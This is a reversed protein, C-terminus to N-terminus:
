MCMSRYIKICIVAYQIHMICIQSNEHCIWWQLLRLDRSLKLILKWTITIVNEATQVRYIYIYIYIYIYLSIPLSIPLNISIYSSSLIYLYINLFQSLYTFISISFYFLIFYIWFTVTGLLWQCSTPATCIWLFSRGQTFSFNKRGSKLLWTAGFLDEEACSSAAFVHQNLRTALYRTLIAALLGVGGFCIGSFVGEPCSKDVM